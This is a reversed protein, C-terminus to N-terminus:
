HFIGLDVKSDFFIRWILDNVKLLGAYIYYFMVIDFMCMFYKGNSMNRRLVSFNM